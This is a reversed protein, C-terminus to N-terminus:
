AVWGDEGLARRRHGGPPWVPREVKAFLYPVLIVGPLVGVVHQSIPMPRSSGRKTRRKHALHASVPFVVFLLLFLAGLTGLAPWLGFM